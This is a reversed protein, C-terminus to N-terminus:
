APHRAGGLKHNYYIVKVAIIAQRAPAAGRPSIVGSVVAVALSACRVHLLQAAISAGSSSTLKSCLLQRKPFDPPLQQKPPSVDDAEPLSKRWLDLTASDRGRRM